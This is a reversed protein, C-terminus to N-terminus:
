GDALNFLRRVRVPLLALGEVASQGRRAHLQDDLWHKSAGGLFVVRPRGPRPKTSMRVDAAEGPQCDLKSWGPNDGVVRCKSIRVIADYVRM